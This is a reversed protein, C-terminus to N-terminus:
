HSRSSMNLDIVKHRRGFFHCAHVNMRSVQSQGLIFAVNFAQVRHRDRLAKLWLDIFEVGVDLLSDVWPERFGKAYCQVGRLLVGACVQQAEEVSCGLLVVRGVRQGHAGVIVEWGRDKPAAVRM